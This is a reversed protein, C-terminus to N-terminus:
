RGGTGGGQHHCANQCAVRGEDIRIVAADHRADEAAKCVVDSGCAQMNDTHLQSEVRNSDAYARSCSAICSATRNSASASLGDAPGTVNDGIMRCQSLMLTLLAGAAVMLFVRWRPHMRRTALSM